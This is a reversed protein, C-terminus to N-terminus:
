SASVLRGRVRVIRDVVARSFADPLKSGSTRKGTIRFVTFAAPTIDGNRDFRFSGLIGNEIRLRRLERNVSERTGDSRAIAALLAEAGEAAEVVYLASPIPRSPHQKAFGRLFRRGAKGLGDNAVATTTTYMGVAAGHSDRLAQSVPQFSDGAILVVKRGLRARLAEVVAGANAFLGDGVFVGDPRAAAVKQALQRYSKAEPVWTALGAIAVGLRKAARRFATTTEGAGDTSHLLYVRRLGLEHALVADAAGDYDAPGTVRVYNRVETPYYIGPEDPESGTAHHTLGPYTNAPSIMALPGEARNTIPIQASACVSQLPGIVGVLRRTAAYAKANSACKLIDFGGGQATSDDCSQYGVTYRGARFRHERLVQAIAEVAIRTVEGNPGQLPLDSAILVDPKAVRAQVRGCLSAPLVDGSPVGAVSVWAADKSAAVSPPTGALPIRATVTNTRADVQVLEDEVFNTVWVSGGGYAVSTVGFGIDIPRLRRPGPDIRWLVGTTLDTTWVAGGGLALGALFDASIGIRQAVTNRRPDIKVVEPSDSALLWVGEEGAAIASGAAVRIRAVREGTVPDIRSVTRDPNIAWVAGSGVAVQSVGLVRAEGSDETTPGRTGAGLDVAATVATSGPDVQAVSSTSISAFVEDGQATGNGIWVGGEGVALDTTTGGTGFTKVIRKTVPDLKSITRDDANLVWVARKGVAITSPTTGAETYSVDGNDVAAIANGVHAPGGSDGGLLLYTAAGAGALALAAGALLVPLRRAKPPAADPLPPLEVDPVVEIVRVPKELGKLRVARREVFRAGELRRALTAVTESALIQGPKAISCLRAAVNLAGGRYGTEVRVAEGSDLGIGIGLPFVPEGDQRERFRVQLQVAARVAQRPSPFACLAEDGRLEILEGGSAAITERALAAFTGAVAAGAEDGHQQTYSTYGRVDAILFTRVPGHEAEEFNAEDATM